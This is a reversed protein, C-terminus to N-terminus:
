RGVLAIINGDPDKFWAAKSKGTLHIDGHRTVGPMDYHEFTVGRSKLANVTDDLEDDITWTAATARNTGAFDSRYVLISGSGSRFPIVGPESSPLPTLGVVDEYFKRAREIDKVALTVTADRDKLM